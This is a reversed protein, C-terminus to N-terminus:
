IQNFCFKSVLLTSGRATIGFQVFWSVRSQGLKEKTSQQDFIFPAFSPAHSSSIGRKISLFPIRFISPDTFICCKVYTPKTHTYEVDGSADNHYKLTKRHPQATKLDGKTGTLSFFSGYKYKFLRQGRNIPWRSYAGCRPCFLEHAGGKFLCLVGSARVVSINVRAIM